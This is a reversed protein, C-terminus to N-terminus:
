SWSRVEIISRIFAEANAPIEVDGTPLTELTMITDGVTVDGGNTLIRLLASFKFNDLNESRDINYPDTVTGTALIDTEVREMQAALALSGVETNGDLEAKIFAKLIPIHIEKILRTQLAADQTEGAVAYNATLGTEMRKLEIMVMLSNVLEVPVGADQLAKHLYFDQGNAAATSREALGRLKEFSLQVISRDDEITRFAPLLEGFLVPNIAALTTLATATTALATITESNTNVFKFGISGDDAETTELLVTGEALAAADKNAIIDDGKLDRPTTEQDVTTRLDAKVGFPAGPQPAEEALGRARATDADGLQPSLGFVVNSFLFMQVFLILVIKKM